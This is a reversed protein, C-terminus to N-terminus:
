QRITFSTISPSGTPDITYTFDAVFAIHGDEYYVTGAGGHAEIQTVYFKGGLVEKEQSLNSINQQVYEEVSFIQVTAPVDVPKKIRQNLAENRVNFAVGLVIILLVLSLFTKKV